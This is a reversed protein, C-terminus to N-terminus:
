LSGGDEDEEDFANSSLEPQEILEAVPLTKIFSELPVTKLKNRLYEEIM